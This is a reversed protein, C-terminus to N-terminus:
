STVDSTVTDQSQEQLGFDGYYPETLNVLGPDFWSSDDIDSVNNYASLSRLYDILDRRHRLATDTRHVNRFLLYIMSLTVLLPRPIVQVLFKWTLSHV